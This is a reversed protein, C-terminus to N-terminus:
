PNPPKTHPHNKVNKTLKLNPVVLNGLGHLVPMEGGFVEVLKKEVREQVACLEVWLSSRLPNTLKNGKM